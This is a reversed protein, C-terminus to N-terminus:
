SYFTLVSEQNGHVLLFPPLNRTMIDIWAMYIGIPFSNDMKPIPLSMVILSSLKSNEQIIEAIRLYFETKESNSDLDLQTMQADEESEFNIKVLPVVMENFEHRIKKGAPNKTIETLTIIDHFDIRFKTLLIAMNKKEDDLKENNNGLIFVRLKCQAFEKCTTLIYPLLLTLGGDDFLWYVDIFGKLSNGKKFQTIKLIFDAIQNELGQSNKLTHTQERSQFDQDNHIFSLLQPVSHLINNTSPFAKYNPDIINASFCNSLDMGGSIRLIAVSLNLEFGSQLVQYYSRTKSSSIQWNEKFGVLLLNPKMKGLGSLEMAMRAGACYDSLQTISYFAKIKNSILWNIGKEKMIEIDKRDMSEDEVVNVCELFSLGRTLLSAFDILCPRDTLDGSLM